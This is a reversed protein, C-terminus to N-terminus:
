YKGYADCHRGLLYGTAAIITGLAKFDQEFAPCEQATPWVNGHYYNIYEQRIKEDTIL